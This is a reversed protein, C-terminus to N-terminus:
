IGGLDQMFSREIDPARPGCPHGKYAPENHTAMIGRRASIGHDALIRLLEDRSVPFEEPLLVWFSQYNTRGFEPDCVMALGPVDTLLLRYREALERRRAIMADLKGLQVLGLAAQMDTMQYNFGAELYHEIM